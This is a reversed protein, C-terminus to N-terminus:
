EFRGVAWGGITVEVGVYIMIYFAMFHVAPTKM